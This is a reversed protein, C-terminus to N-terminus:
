SQLAISHWCGADEKGELSSGGHACHEGGAGTRVDGESGRLAVGVGGKAEGRRGAARVGSCTAPVPKIAAFRWQVMAPPEGWLAM